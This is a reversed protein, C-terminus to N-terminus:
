LLQLTMWGWSSLCDGTLGQLYVANERCDFINKPESNINRMINLNAKSSPKAKKTENGKSSFKVVSTKVGDLGCPGEM